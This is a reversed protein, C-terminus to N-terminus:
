CFSRYRTVEYATRTGMMKFLKWKEEKKTRSRSLTINGFIYDIPDDKGTGGADDDIAEVKLKM